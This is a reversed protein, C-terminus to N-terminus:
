NFFNRIQTSIDRGNKDCKVALLFKCYGKSKNAWREGLMNKEETDLTDLFKEGKYEIAAYTGDKLKVVFDPYFKHRHMPMWFSYKEEREINRIWFEVKPNVDIFRACDVEEANMDGIVSYFHKGFKTSGTYFKKAPYIKSDFTFAIDKNVRIKGSVNDTFLSFVKQSASDILREIKEALMKKLTFRLQVLEALTFSKENM